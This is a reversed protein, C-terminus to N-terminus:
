RAQPKDKVQPLRPSATDGFASPLGFHLDSTTSTRLSWRAQAWQPPMTASPPQETQRRV